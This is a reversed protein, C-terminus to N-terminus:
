DRSEDHQDDEDVLVHLLDIQDHFEEIEDGDCHRRGQWDTHSKTNDIGHLPQLLLPDETNSLILDNHAAHYLKAAEILRSGKSLIEHVEMSQDWGVLSM